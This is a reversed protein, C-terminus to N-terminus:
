FEFGCIGSVFFYLDPASISHIRFWQFLDPMQPFLTRNGNTGKRGLQRKRCLGHPTTEIALSLSWRIHRAPPTPLLTAEPSPWLSSAERRAADTKPVNERGEGRFFTPVPLMTWMGVLMELKDLNCNYRVWSCPVQIFAGDINKELPVKRKCHERLRRVEQPSGKQMSWNLVHNLAISCRM